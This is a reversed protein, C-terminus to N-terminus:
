SLARRLFAAMQGRTVLNDPCYMDHTPPNCGKTVGATALKDIDNEFVSDDDDTFLDGTGADTYGLARVLFAAMQGRTVFDDPCFMDNTPPNCGKTIGQIALWTIDLEFTSGDDDTFDVVIDISATQGDQGDDRNATLKIANGPGFDWTPSCGPNDPDDVPVDFDVSFEGGAEHSWERRCFGNGPLGEPPDLAILTDAPAYGSVVNEFPDIAVDIDITTLERTITGNTAIVHNGPALPGVGRQEAGEYFFTETSVLSGKANTDWVEVTITSGSPWSHLIYKPGSPDGNVYAQIIEDQASAPAIAAWLSTVIMALAVFASVVSRARLRNSAPRALASLM